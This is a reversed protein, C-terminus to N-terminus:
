GLLPRVREGLVSANDPNPSDIPGLIVWDAGADGYSRLVEAIQEPGGVLAGPPPDLRNAKASAAGDDEGAVVLGAWSVTFAPRAQEVERRVADAERAFREPTGGWRNWGDARNAALVRVSFATGGVWVPYGRGRTAALAQDLREVRDEESPLDVGFAVNEAESQSDGAGLTAVLRDGGVRQLTDLAAALTAPPRLTARAVLPGFAIRETEAAIAGLMTTCELAPRRTGDGRPERFLHDFAFVGDLEAREAARAVELVVEPDDQFSPLTIGLKM